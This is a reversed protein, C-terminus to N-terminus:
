SRQRRWSLLGLGVLGSGFLLASAPLPTASVDASTSSRSLPDAGRAGMPGGFSRAETTGALENLTLLGNQKDDKWLMAFATWEQPATSATELGPTTAAAQAMVHAVAYMALLSVLVAVPILYSWKRM